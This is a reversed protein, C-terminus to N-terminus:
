LNKGPRVGAYTAIVILDAYNQDHKSKAAELLQLTEGKTYAIYSQNSERRHKKTRPISIAIAPMLCINPAETYRENCYSLYERLYAFNKRVTRLAWVNRRLEDLWIKLDERKITEFIPFRKCFKKELFSRAGDEVM